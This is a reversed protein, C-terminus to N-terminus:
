ETDNKHPLLQKWRNFSRVLYNFQSHSSLPNHGATPDFLLTTSASKSHHVSEQEGSAATAAAAAELLAVLRNIRLTVTRKIDAVVVTM